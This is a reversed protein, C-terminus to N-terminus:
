VPLGDRATFRLTRGRPVAATSFTVRADPGIAAMVTRGRHPLTVPPADTCWAFGPGRTALGRRAQRRQSM